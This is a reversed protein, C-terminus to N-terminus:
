IRNRESFSVLSPTHENEFILFLYPNVSLVVKVSRLEVRGVVYPTHPCNGLISLARVVLHFLNFTLRTITKFMITGVHSKSESTLAKLSTLLNHKIKTTRPQVKGLIIFTKVDEKYAIFYFM